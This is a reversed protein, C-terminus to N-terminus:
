IVQLTINQYCQRNQRKEIGELVMGVMNKNALKMLRLVTIIIKMGM